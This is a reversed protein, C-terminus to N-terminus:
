CTSLEDFRGGMMYDIAQKPRLNLDNTVITYVGVM